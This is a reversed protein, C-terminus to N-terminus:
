GSVRLYVRDNTPAAAALLGQPVMTTRARMEGRWIAARWGGARSSAGGRTCIYLMCIVHMCCTAAAHLTGHACPCPPMARVAGHM